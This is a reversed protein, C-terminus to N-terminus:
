VAHFAGVIRGLNLVVDFLIQNNSWVIAYLQRVQCGGLTAKCNSLVKSIEFVFLLIKKFQHFLVLLLFFVLRGSLALEIIVRSLVRGGVIEFVNAPDV